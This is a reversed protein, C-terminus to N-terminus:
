RYKRVSKITKYAVTVVIGFSGIDIIEGVVPIINSAIIEPSGFLLILPAIKLILSEERSILFSKYASAWSRRTQAQSSMANSQMM